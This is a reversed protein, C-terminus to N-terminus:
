PSVGDWAPHAVALCANQGGFGFSNSLLLGVEAARGSRGVLDLDVKPDIDELHANPPLRAHEFAALCGLLEVAGAAAIAHGVQAKSSSVPPANAGFVRRIAGAETVDNLPTGTGHANIYDIAGADTGADLLAARMAREAGLGEPHPATVSAADTSSGWGLVVGYVRRGAARARSLPELVFFAGGEGMVFGDRGRDFPRCVRTPDAETSTAGLLIFPLMGFPHVMSDGAGALAVTAEGRRILDAAHGVAATGAACASFHCASAGELGLHARLIGIPRDVQHRWPAQRRDGEAAAFAAFDFAGSTVFPACDEHLETLSVSSLGTAYVVAADNPLVGHDAVARLAAAVALESKRDDLGLVAAPLGAPDFGAVECANAVPFRRADFARIPAAASRGGLLAAGHTALDHGLPTALGVGSIAVPEPRRERVIITM